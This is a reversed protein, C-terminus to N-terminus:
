KATARIQMGRTLFIQMVRCASARKAATYSCGSTFSLLCRKSSEAKRGHHAGHGRARRSKNNRMCILRVMYECAKLRAYSVYVCVCVCVCSMRLGQKLRAYICAKLRAHSVYVCLCMCVSCTTRQVCVCMCVRVCVCECVHAMCAAPLLLAHACCESARM